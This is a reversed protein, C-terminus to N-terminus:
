TTPWSISIRSHQKNIIRDGSIRDDPTGAPYVAIHPDGSRHHKSWARVIDALREVFGAGDPGFAHFGFEANKKETNRRVVIYGFNPGDIAVMSFGLNTPGIKGTTQEPDISMSCYTPVHTALYMQLTGIPEQNAVTVGTWTEARAGDLVGALLSPDAPPGEDFRLTVGEDGPLQMSQQHHTGAGRVAVFGCVHASTAVLHDGQRLFGYTRTLGNIRLPVVLRGDDKLQDVWAPPIDWAGVTVVIADFPANKPFGDEGDAVVVNVNTYGTQNLFQEARAAPAPDIDVTTVQGTPGVLEAIYAANPGNTGIELVNDGPRIGAQELQMAQIQPASVSSIHNGHEDKQTIVADYTNYADELSAEPVSLHRPVKRMAAEVGPSVITGDEKLRDVVAGRLEAARESEATAETM